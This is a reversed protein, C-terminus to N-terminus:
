FGFNKALLQWKAATSNYMFGVYDYKSSGSSTTPLSLDTSGAFVANWSFTQANTSRLRFILKQGNVPTGTPANITLTGASQTNAQTAIDTTDANITVSTADAIVVVRQTVATGSVSGGTIAGASADQTAITGLGLNTRATSATTAGTGGSAVALTASLGAATGSTNQNLTPIDAAVIARFSPVGSSGNPAALVYNATKSAYPNLTDGYNASLSIAPTSGGSSAVPSTGSVSTIGGAVTAWSSNSGDTTLYKGSNSTQTPLLANLAANATTQGTGGQPISLATTLGTLSTIDSNAGATAAGLNTRAGSATSAGTGGDTVALDTGLALASIYSVGDVVDTGNNYLWM